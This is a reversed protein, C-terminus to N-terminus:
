NIIAVCLSIINIYIFLNIYPYSTAIYKYIASNNERTGLFQFFLYNQSKM